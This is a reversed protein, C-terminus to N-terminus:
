FSNNLERIFAVAMLFFCGALINWSIWLFNEGDLIEM